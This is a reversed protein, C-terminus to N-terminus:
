DSSESGEMAQLLWKQLVQAFHPKLDRFVLCTGLIPQSYIVNANAEFFDSGAFIKVVVHMGKELQNASELYCGHLSLEKVQALVIGGVNEPIVEARAAFPFTRHQPSEMTPSRREYRKPRVFRVGEHMICYRAPKQRDHM